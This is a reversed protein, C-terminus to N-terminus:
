SPDGFWDFRVAGEIRSFEFSYCLLELVRWFEASVCLCVCVCVCVCVCLLVRVCACWV